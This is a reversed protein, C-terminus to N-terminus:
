RRWQCTLDMSIGYQALVCMCRLLCCGGCNPRAHSRRSLWSRRPACRPISVTRPALRGGVLQRVQVSSCALPTVQHLYVAYRNQDATGATFMHAWVSAPSPQTRDAQRPSALDRVASEEGSTPLIARSRPQHSAWPWPARLILVSIFM